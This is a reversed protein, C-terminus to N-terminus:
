GGLAEADRRVAEFAVEAASTLSWAAKLRAVAADFAEADAPILMLIIEKKSPAGPADGAVNRSEFEAETEAYQVNGLEPRVTQASLRALLDDVDDPSYGTGTLNNLSELLEMVKGDDYSGLDSTRNDAILYALAEADDLDVRVAAITDWGLSKAAALTRNGALVFGTSNQVVLAKTQGFRTLSEALQAVDGRRPNRPHPKLGKLPVTYPALDTSVVAATM